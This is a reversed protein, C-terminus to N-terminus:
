TAAIPPYEPALRLRLDTRPAIERAGSRMNCGHPAGNIRKRASSFRRRIYLRRYEM